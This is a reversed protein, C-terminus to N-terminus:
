RTLPKFEGGGYREIYERWVGLCAKFWKCKKCTTLKLRRKLVLEEITNEEKTSIRKLMLGKLWPNVYTIMESVHEEYGELFCFPVDYVTIYIKLKKALDIAKKLYDSIESYHPVIQYWYKEAEGTGEPFTLNIQRIGLNSSFKILNQLDKYNQKLLIIKLCIIAKHALLNKIGKLTEKYSGNARTIWDFIEPRTHHFPIVYSIHPDIQMVQKTFKKSSFMRGNTQLVIKMGLKKIFKLIELFDKRITPEGGTLIVEKTGEKAEKALIEKILSTPKDMPLGLKKLKEIISSNFCFVCNNNCSYGLLLSLAIEKM